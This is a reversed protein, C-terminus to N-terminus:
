CYSLSKCYSVANRVISWAKYCTSILCLTHTHMTNTHALLHTNNLRNVTQSMAIGTYLYPTEIQCSSFKLLPFSKPTLFVGDGNLATFLTETHREDAPTNAMSLTSIRNVKTHHLLLSAGSSVRGTDCGIKAINVGQTFLEVSISPKKQRWTHTFYVKSLEVVQLKWSNGGNEYLGIKKYTALKHTFQQKFILIWDIEKNQQM